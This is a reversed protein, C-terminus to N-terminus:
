HGTLFIHLKTSCCLSSGSVIHLRKVGTKMEVQELVKTVANEEHLKKDADDLLKQVAPPVPM